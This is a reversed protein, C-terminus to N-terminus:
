EPLKIADCESIFFLQEHKCRNGIHQEIERAIERNLLSIVIGTNENIVADEIGIVNDTDM